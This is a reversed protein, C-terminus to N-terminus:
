ECVDCINFDECYMCLYRKGMFDLQHCESCTINQNIVSSNLSKKINQGKEMQEM